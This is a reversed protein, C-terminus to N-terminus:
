RRRPEAPGPPGHQALRDMLAVATALQQRERASLEQEIARGLWDARRRREEGLMDRGTDTLHLVLKRGDSPHPEARVLGAGILEKVAKAASQHTVGRRAAIDATTQPGERELYGLVAAEGPTMTDAARVTRVLRGLTHRLDEALDYADM